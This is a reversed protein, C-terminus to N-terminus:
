YTTQNEQKNKEEEESKISGIPLFNIIGAFFASKKDLTVM